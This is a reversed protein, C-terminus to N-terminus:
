RDVIVEYWKQLSCPLFLGGSVRTSAKGIIARRNGFGFPRGSNLLDGM